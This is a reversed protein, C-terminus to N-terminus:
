SSILIISYITNNYDDTYGFFYMNVENKCTKFLLSILTGYSFGGTYSLNKLTNTSILSENLFEVWCM